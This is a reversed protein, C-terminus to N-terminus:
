DIQGPVLSIEIRVGQGPRTVLSFSGGWRDVRQRLSQMGLSDGTLEAPDFGVGDDIFRLRVISEEGHMECRFSEAGSHRIVNSAIGKAILIVERKFRPSLGEGPDSWSHRYDVRIDSGDFLNEITVGLFEGLDEGALDSPELAWLIERLTQSGARALSVIRSVSQDLVRGEVRRSAVLEGLIKLQAFSAGIEDHMDHAIRRRDAELRLQSNMTELRLRNRVRRQHLGWVLGVLGLFVGFKFGLTQYFYPLIHFRLVAPKPSRVQNKDVAEVEFIHEGPALDFLWVSHQKGLENWSKSISPIRYRFRLLEPDAFHIASFTFELHAGSGPLLRLPASPSFKGSNRWLEKEGDRLHTLRIRPGDSVTGLLDEPKFAVLDGQMCFYVRGDLGIKALPFQGTEVSPTSLGDPKAFRLWEVTAFQGSQVREVFESRLAYIGNSTGAWVNGDPDEVVAHIPLNLDGSIDVTNENGSFPNWFLGDYNSIWLGSEKSEALAVIANEAYNGAVASFHVVEGTRSDWRYLGAQSAGIWVMGDRDQMLSSVGFRPLEVQDNWNEVGGDNCIWIGERTGLWAGSDKVWIMSNLDSLGLPQSPIYYPESETKTYRFAIPIPSDRICMESGM